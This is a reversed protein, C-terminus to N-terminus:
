NVNLIFIGDLLQKRNNLDNVQDAASGNTGLSTFYLSEFENIQMCVFLFGCVSLIHQYVVGFRRNCLLESLGQMPDLCRITGLFLIFYQAHPITQWNLASSPHPGLLFWYFLLSILGLAILFEYNSRILRSTETGPTRRSCDRRERRRVFHTITSIFLFTHFYPYPRLSLDHPLVPHLSTRSRNLLGISTPNILPYVQYWFCKEWRLHDRKLDENMQELQQATARAKALQLGCSIYTLPM